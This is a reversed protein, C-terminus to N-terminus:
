LVRINIVANVLARWRGREQAYINMIVANKIAFNYHLHLSMLLFTKINTFLSILKTHFNLSVPEKDSLWLRTKPAFLLSQHFPSAHSPFCDLSMWPLLYKMHFENRLKKFSCPLCTDDTTDKRKSSLNYIFFFWFFFEINHLTSYREVALAMLIFVLRRTLLGVSM